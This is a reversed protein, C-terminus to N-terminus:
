GALSLNPQWRNLVKGVSALEAMLDEFRQFTLSQSGDSLAKAPNPHVEITLSDTGALFIGSLTFTIM